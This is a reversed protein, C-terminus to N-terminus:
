IEKQAKRLFETYQEENYDGDPDDGSLKRRESDSLMFQKFRGVKKNKKTTGQQCEKKPSLHDYRLLPLYVNNMNVNTM